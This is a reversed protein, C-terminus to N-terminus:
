KDGTGFAASLESMIQLSTEVDIGHSMFIDLSKTLYEKTTKDTPLVSFLIKLMAQNELEKIFAKYDIEYDAM